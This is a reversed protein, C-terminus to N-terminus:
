GTLLSLRHLNERGCRPGERWMGCDHFDKIGNEFVHSIPNRRQFNAWGTGM